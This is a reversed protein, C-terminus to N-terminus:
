QYEEQKQHNRRDARDYIAAKRLAKQAAKRKFGDELQRLYDQQRKLDQETLLAEEAERIIKKELWRQQPTLTDFEHITGGLKAYHHAFWSKCIKPIPKNKGGLILTEPVWYIERKKAFVTEALIEMSRKGLGYRSPRFPHPKLNPNGQKVHWFDTLYDTVYCITAPNFEMIDVHGYKWQPIRLLARPLGRHYRPPDRYNKQLNFILFHAHNRDLTEGYEMAGFFRIPAQNGARKESARMTDQFQRYTEIAQERDRFRDAHEDSHTLTLCTKSLSSRGELEARIRWEDRKHIRCPLCQGCPYPYWLGTADSRMHGPKQCRM